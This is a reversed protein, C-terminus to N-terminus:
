VNSNERRMLGRVIEYYVISCIYIEGDNALTKEINQVVFEDKRLFDSVVNTDLLYKM